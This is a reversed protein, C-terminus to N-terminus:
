IRSNNFEKAQNEDNVDNTSGILGGITGGSIVGVPGFLLGFLGGIVAGATTKTGDNEAVVDNVTYRRGNVSFTRAGLKGALIPRSRAIHRIYIKNGNADKVYLKM